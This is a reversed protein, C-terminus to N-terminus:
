RLQFLAQAEGPKLGIERALRVAEEETKRALELEGQALLVMGLEVRGMVGGRKDGIEARM